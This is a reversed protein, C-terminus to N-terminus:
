EALMTKIAKAIEAPNDDAIKRVHDILKPEKSIKPIIDVAKRRIEAQAEQFRKHSIRKARYESYKKRFKWLIFVIIALALIQWGTKIWFKIQDDRLIRQKENWDDKITEFPINAIEMIDNRKESFGVAGKVLSVLKSVEEQPRPNYQRVMKGDPGKVMEYIGDLSVAVHLRSLNGIENVLHEITKNIEYNRITNKRSNSSDRIKEPVQSDSESQNEEMIEESRVSLNDPDYTEKTHEVQNFNLDASVRVISKDFGLVADLMSQAKDELYMEVNKKLELQNSSLRALRDQKQGVSLLKGSSDLVTINEHSLGEVSSAILHIIGEIQKQSLSGNRNLYLVVSASPEKVDEKFLRKEPIVLHIRSSRIAELQSITKALEGELARRFNIKQLFDTMGLNTKDFIEYGVQGQKPLGSAALELRVKQIKNGPIYVATGGQSLRYPINNNALYDVVEGAEAPELNRYLAQYDIKVVQSLLTIIIILALGGLGTFIIQKAKSLDSWWPAIKTKLQEFYEKLTDLMLL